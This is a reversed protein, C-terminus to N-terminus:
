KTRSTIRSGWLSKMSSGPYLFASSITKLLAPEQVSQQFSLVRKFDNNRVTVNQYPDPDTSRYRHSVVTNEDTVKLVAVFFNNQKTVLYYSDLNKKSNKSLSLFIWVSGSGCCQQVDVFRNSEDCCHVKDNYQFTQKLNNVKIM